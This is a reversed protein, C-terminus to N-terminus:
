AASPRRGVLLALLITFIVPAATLYVFCAPCLRYRETLTLMDIGGGPRDTTLLYVAVNSAALAIGALIILAMLAAGGTPRGRLPQPMRNEKVMSDVLRNTYRLRGNTELPPTRPAM